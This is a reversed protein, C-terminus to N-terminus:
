HVSSALPADTSLPRVPVAASGTGVAAPPGGGPPLSASPVTSDLPAASPGAAGAVAPPLLPYDHTWMQYNLFLGIGFLAWLAIRLNITTPMVPRHQIPRCRITAAPISRTAARWDGSPWPAAACAAM